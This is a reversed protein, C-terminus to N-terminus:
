LVRLIKGQGPLYLSDEFRQGLIGRGTAKKYHKLCDEFTVSRTCVSPGHELGGLWLGRTHELDLGACNSTGVRLREQKKDCM